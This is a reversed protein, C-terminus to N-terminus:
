LFQSTHLFNLATDIEKQVQKSGASTKNRLRARVEFQLRTPLTKEKLYLNKVHHVKRIMFDELTELNEEILKATMPLKSERKDLWKRDGVRGIIETISVRKLPHIEQKIGSIVKKVKPELENDIKKWDLHEKTRAGKAVPPLNEELWEADNRRLWLYHFNDMDMLEQRAAKPYNKRLSLWEDRYESLMESYPKRYKRYKEPIQIQRADPFMEPLDLRIAHRIIKCSSTKMEDAIKTISIEPNRWYDTLKNEWVTGYERVSSFRFRDNDSQDPGTRQYIFGCDCSFIGIPLGRNKEGKTINDLIRCNEILLKGFHDAGANLCPYPADGFPKYEEFDLFFEEATMELFTMILLHRVPHFTMETKSSMLIKILWKDREPDCGTEELLRVSFLDNFSDLFKSNKIRGNYYAFGKKLLSNYYRFRITETEVASKNESLLWRADKALKLMIRHENSSSNLYEPMDEEIISDAPVFFASSERGFKIDTDSYFCEHDPCVNIGAIQPLRHWYTEGYKNRDEIVCDSCFRLFELPQIQKVKVGTRATLNNEAASRMEKRVLKARAAPLFPEFFPFLTNNNIIGEASFCHGPPLVSVLRDINTPFDIIASLGSSGLIEEATTKKNPYSVRESYRACLSYLLEDPYHEPFFGIM